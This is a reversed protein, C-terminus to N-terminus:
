KENRIRPNKKKKKQKKKIMLNSLLEPCLHSIEKRQSKKRQPNFFLSSIVQIM